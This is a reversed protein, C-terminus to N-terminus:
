AVDRVLDSLTIAVNDFPDKSQQARCLVVAGGSAAITVTAMRYAAGECMGGAVFLAALHDAWNGFIPGRFVLQPRRALARVLSCDLCPHAGPV